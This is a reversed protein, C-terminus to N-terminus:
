TAVVVGEEDHAKRRTSRKEEGGSGTACANRNVRLVSPGTGWGLGREREVQKAAGRNREKLLTPKLRRGRRLADCAGIKVV